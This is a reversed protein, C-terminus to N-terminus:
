PVVEAIVVAVTGEHPLKVAEAFGQLDGPSAQANGSKSIRAGVVIEPFMSLKLAPTMAMEDTLTVAFPLQSAPVRQIALPMPPGDKAKAFVYLVDGPALKAKLADALTVEVALGPGSATAPPASREGPDAVSASTSTAVPGASGPLPAMGLEGRVVNIQETLSAAERSGPQLQTILADWTKLTGERDGAQRLAFGYLWLGRQHQPAIKLAAELLEKPKGLLTRPESSLGLAQAYDIMLEPDDKSLAYAKEFAPAAKGFEGLEQWTRGLLTWGELDGPGDGLRQALGEAAERLDPGQQQAPENGANSAASGANGSQEGRAQASSLGVFLLADPKGFRQYLVVTAIPLGIALALLMPLSSPPKPSTQQGDADLLGVLQTKVAEKRAAAAEPALLGDAELQGLVALQERLLKVQGVFPDAQRQILPWVAFAVALLILLASVTWFASM